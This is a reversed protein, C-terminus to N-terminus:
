KAVAKAFGIRGKGEDFHTYYYKIFSDGLILTTGFEKPFSMPELGIICQEDGQQGTVKLVYQSPPLDYMDGGIKFSIKPLTDIKTCDIPGVHGIKLLMLGIIEPSGVILSTGSDVIGHFPKTSAQIEGVYASDVQIMWYNEAQLSYYKFDGTYYAKNVGGLVLSSGASSESQTLYFSFSKDSILGQDFMLDFVTPLGLVSIQQFAMGLIGDFKSTIFNLSVQTMAGFLVNKVALGGLNVVDNSVTGNVAGSGYKITMIRGDDQHTTSHAGNYKGMHLCPLSRCAVSPVWLNSSGTDFIVTFQQRPTGITIPGYYQADYLNSIPIEAGLKGVFENFRPYQHYKILKLLKETNDEKQVPIEFKCLAVSAILLIILVRM